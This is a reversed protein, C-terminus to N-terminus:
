TLKKHCLVTGGMCWPVIVALQWSPGKPLLKEKKKDKEREEERERERERETEREGREKL